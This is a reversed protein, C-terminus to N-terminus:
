AQRVLLYVRDGLPRISYGSLDLDELQVNQYSNSFILLFDDPKKQRLNENFLAIHEEKSVTDQYTSFNLSRHNRLLMHQWSSDTVLYYADSEKLSDAEKLFSVTEEYAQGYSAPVRIGQMPGDKLITGEASPVMNWHLLLTGAVMLLTVCRMQKGDVAMLIAADAVVLAQSFSKLGLNSSYGFFLADLLFLFYLAKLTKDEGKLMWPFAALALPLYLNSISPADPMWIQQVLFYAASIMGLVNCVKQALPKKSIVSAVMAAFQLFIFPGFSEWGGIVFRYGMLLIPNRGSFHNQNRAPLQRIGEIVQAPSSRHFVFLCFFAVMLLIGLFAWLSEDKKERDWQKWHRLSHIVIGAFLLVLYPTSLVACSFLIGAVFSKLKGTHILCHAQLLALIGITNYSLSMMNLPAFLLIMIGAAYANPYTGYKKMFLLFTVLSMVLYCFRLFLVVGDTGGSVHMWFWVFPMTLFGFMQSIHWEDVFMRTGTAFRYGLAAYYPEDLQIRMTFCLYIQLCIILLLFLLQVHSRKSQKKIAEMDRDNYPM